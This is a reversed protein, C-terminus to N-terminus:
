SRNVNQCRSNPLYQYPPQAMSTKLASTGCSKQNLFTRWLRMATNM